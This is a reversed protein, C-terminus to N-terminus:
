LGSPAPLFSWPLNWQAAVRAALAQVGLTETAYHGAYIVVLGAEEADVATHHPGEGVVLTDAGLNIAERLSESSAGGGTCIAVRRTRRAADHPTVVTHHGHAAAFRRARDCLEATPMDTEAVVGIPVGKYPLWTAGPTLGLERALLANNGIATHRDLPLHASYVAIDATVLRRFKRHLTGRVPQAGAWFLGHHVILLNAGAEAALEVTRLSADVAAAVRTVPGLHDFQLGNLAGAYDPTTQTELLDDLWPAIVSTTAAQAGTGTM